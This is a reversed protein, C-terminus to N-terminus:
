QPIEKYFRPQPLIDARSMFDSWKGALIWRFHNLVRTKRWFARVGEAELDNSVLYTKGNQQERTIEKWGNNPDQFAAEEEEPVPEQAPPAESLLEDLDDVPQIEPEEASQFTLPRKQREKPM